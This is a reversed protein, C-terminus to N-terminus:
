EVEKVEERSRMESGQRRRWKVVAVVVGGCDQEGDDAVKAVGCGYDRAGDAGSCGVLAGQGTRRWGSASV